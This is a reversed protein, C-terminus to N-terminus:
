LELMKFTEAARGHRRAGAFGRAPLQIELVALPYSRRRACNRCRDRGMAITGEGPWLHEDKLGHNDHIHPSDQHAAELEAIAAAIDGGIHAHGVYGSM